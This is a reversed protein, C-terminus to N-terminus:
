EVSMCFAIYAIVKAYLTAGVDIDKQSFQKIAGTHALYGNLEEIRRAYLEKLRREEEYLNRQYLDLGWFRDVAVQDKEAERM